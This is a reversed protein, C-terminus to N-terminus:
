RAPCEYGGAEIIAECQRLENLTKQTKLRDIEEKQAALESTGELSDAIGTLGSAYGAIAGSIAEGRAESNWTFETKRGFSDFKMGVTRSEGFGVDLCLTGTSNLQAAHMTMNPGPAPANSGPVRPYVPGVLTLQAKISAPNPLEIQLECDRRRGTSKEVLPIVRAPAANETVCGTIKFHDTFVTSTVFTPDFWKEFPKTDLPIGDTGTCIGSEPIAQEGNKLDSKFTGKTDVRLIGTRLAALEAAFRNITKINKEIQDPTSGSNISAKLSAIKDKLTNAEDVANKAEPKCITVETAVMSPVLTAGTKIVNSIIAATRNSNESNISKIVGNDDVGITLGRKISYSALDSGSLHYTRTSDKGAKSVMKVDVDFKTRALTEGCEKLVVGVTVLGDTRPHAYTMGASSGPETTACGSSIVTLPLLLIISFRTIVSKPIATSAKM